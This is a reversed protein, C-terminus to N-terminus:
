PNHGSPPSARWLLFVALGAGMCIAIDAINFAPWHWGAYHFDLFDVVAGLRIRDIFNGAAGGLILGLSYFLVKEDERAKAAIYLIVGCALVTAAIFFWIQWTIEPDNLFGFAAGLNRVHVLNFFSSLRIGDHLTLNREVALKAAQDLIVIIATLLFIIRYRM